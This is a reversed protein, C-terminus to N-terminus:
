FQWSVPRDPSFGVLIFSITDGAHIVPQSAEVYPGPSPGTPSSCAIAATSCVLAAALARAPLRSADIALLGIRAWVSAISRM